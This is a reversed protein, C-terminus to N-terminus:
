DVMLLKYSLGYKWITRTWAVTRSHRAGGLVLHGGRTHLGLQRSFLLQASRNKDKKPIIEEASLNQGALSFCGTRDNFARRVIAIRDVDKGVRAECSDKYRIYFVANKANLGGWECTGYYKRYSRHTTTAIALELYLRIWDNEGGIEQAAFLLSVLSSKFAQSDYYRELHLM